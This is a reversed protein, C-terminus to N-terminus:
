AGFVTILQDKFLYFFFVAFLIGDFRDLFGGHGPLITGSDKLDSRRKLWSEFLDGCLSLTCTIITILALLAWSAHPRNFVLFVIGIAAAACGGFFGEWTKGPSILTAIKTKGWLKGAIFSGTDHSSVIVFLAFLLNHYQPDMNLDLLLVFPLVPYFPTLLWFTFDSLAFFQRWEFLIIWLLIALLVTSFAAPPMYIFSIWFLTGLVVSTGIRQTLEKM